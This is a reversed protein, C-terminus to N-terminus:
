INDYIYQCTQRITAHTLEDSGEGGHAVCVRTCVCVNNM